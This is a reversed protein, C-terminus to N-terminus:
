MDYSKLIENYLEGSNNRGVQSEKYEEGISFM